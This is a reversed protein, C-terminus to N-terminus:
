CGDRLNCWICLCSQLMMLFPPSKTAAIVWPGAIFGFVMLMMLSHPLPKVHANSSFDVANDFIRYHAFTLLEVMPLVMSIKAPLLDKHSARSPRFTRTSSTWISIFVVWLCIMMWHIGPYAFTGLCSRVSLTTFCVASNGGLDPRWIANELSNFRMSNDSVRTNEVILHPFDM